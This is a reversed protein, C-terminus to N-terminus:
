FGRMTVHSGSATKTISFGNPIANQVLQVHSILGVARNAGVLDQLTQLVQDLTGADNDTDLSGFGEDIFITDLRIKGSISEVIDSLGLALALAAIFTEGGSLTSTARAKGTHIDHVRIGLGRRGGGKGDFERELSYRGSTMPQLRLNAAQLVQDFMAGIAFTELDLKADNQANFLAALELLDAADAEAAEIRSLEKSISALLKELQDHRAQRQSAESTDAERKEEALASAHKLAELDPREKDKIAQVTTEARDKAIALDSKFKQIHTDLTDIEDVKVKHAQYTEASLGHAKLRALFTERTRKATAAVDDLAKQASEVDKRASLADSQAKANDEQAKKHAALMQVLTAKASQTEAALASANQLPQPVGGLATEYSQKALATATAAEISATQEQTAEAEAKTVADALTSVSRELDALDVVPGLATIKTKLDSVRENAAAATISPSTLDALQAARSKFTAEAAALKKEAETHAGRRTKLTDRAERFAKDLGASEAHGSAPAPHADSGCVSCPEGEILKSALHQAQAAALAAESRDFDDQVKALQALTDKTVTSVSEMVQAAKLKAQEAKAYAKAAGELQKAKTLEADLQARETSQTQAVKFRTQAVKHKQVADQAFATAQSLATQSGSLAAKTTDWKTKLAGAKELTEAYAQLTELRKRQAERKDTLAEQAALADQASIKTAKATKEMDQAITLDSKRVELKQVANQQAAEVDLLSQAKKLTTLMLEKTKIDATSANLATLRAQAAEHALFKTELNNGSRSATEALTAAKVAAKATESATDYLGKAEAIGAKLADPSEFGEHELRGACTLRDIRVKDETAKADEKLTSALKRYLSVDFLDRLIKMREDTKATLFTEFKGQPLLVIQRFQNAGYGLRDQVAAKVDSVKKEAILKRCNKDSIDEPELGTVDFLWAQHAEKTEGDGRKAPRMQDPIRRILYRSTGVEFIFEVQTLIDDDAHHSRLSSTDQENRSAEGFLAFTMASFITSKGSGTSGYIGFLGSKVAERFDVTEEGAYPGFATMTLTLPRM